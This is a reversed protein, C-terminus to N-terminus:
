QDTVLAVDNGVTTGYQFILRGNSIYLGYVMRADTGSAALIIANDRFTRFELQIVAYQSSSSFTGM